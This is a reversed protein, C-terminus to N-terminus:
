FHGRYFVIVVHENEDLLSSLSVQSGKSDPLVFDPVIENTSGSCGFSLLYLICFSAIFSIRSMKRFIM